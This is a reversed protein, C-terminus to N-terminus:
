PLDNFEMRPGDWAVRIEGVSGGRFKEVIITRENPLKDEGHLLLIIDSDEEIAGCERIMAMTPRVNAADRNLQCLVFLPIGAEKALRKLGRSVEALHDRRNGRYKEPEAILGIYDIGATTVGLKNVAHMVVSRIEPMTARPPSWTYFPMEELSRQCEQLDRLEEPTVDGRRILRNDINTGRTLERGAIEADTMELSIMLAPRDRRAAHRLAGQLLSTKGISTRAAILCTEGAMVPGLEEDVKPIGIMARLSSSQDPKVLNAILERASNGITVPQYKSCRNDALKVAAAEMATVLDAVDTQDDYAARLIRNCEAIAQRALSKAAVIEAYYVAHAASPVANLVKSLYAQGGIAEYDGATKLRDVLLTPDIKKGDAVLGGFHLFLKAHAEDYFDGHKVIPTVDHFVEPSLVISGLTGIEASLDFPPSREAIM